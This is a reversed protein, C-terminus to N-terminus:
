ILSFIPSLFNCDSVKELSRRIDGFYRVVVRAHAESGANTRTKLRRLCQFVAIESFFNGFRRRRCTQDIKDMATMRGANRRM